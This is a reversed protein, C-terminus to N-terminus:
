QASTQKSQSDALLRQAPAYDPKLTLAQKFLEIAAAHQGHTALYAGRSVLMSVYVPQVKLSVVDDAEFRLRGDFLGRTIIEPEAPQHFGRERTLQFILGQPVLQYTSILAKTLEADRHPINALLEQTAYVPAQQQHQSVLSLILDYFRTNIRETRAASQEFARADSEWARLDELFADVKDRVTEMREPYRQRLYDFYWSRRLQNVDIAMVDPRRQEIDLVYLMPSYVQWDLTLLMGGPAITKLMNEVYDEAITYQRRNNYPWNGFLGVTPIVILLAVAVARGSSHAAFLRLCWTVGYASAIAMAAFVPLYYADKDEAIDYNLAYALDAVIIAVLFWFGSRDFRFAAVLGGGVMLLGFPLWWVGYERSVFTIFEGFQGIMTALSVTLFVQYQSGSVHAWLKEFTQPDGWNMLPARSAALPLYAYVAVMGAISILAARLLRKSIFLRWGETQYGIVALAILMLGVTVHHVGLALGFVLAAAYLLRDSSAATSQNASVVAELRRRRWRLMLFFVALILLTNLTYVEAITAYAWLTRSCAFLLGAFLGPILALKAEIGQWLSAAPLNAKKDRRSKKALKNEVAPRLAANLLAENVLLTLLAAALAAFLASAFNVRAAVNGIPVLTFLHALLTYLPFGPPHAVGLVRAAAILEGSDVLTVTPALTLGYLTLSLLFVAGACALRAREHGLLSLQREDFPAPAAPSADPSPPSVAASRPRTKAARAM